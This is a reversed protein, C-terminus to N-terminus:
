KHLRGEYKRLKTYDELIDQTNEDKAITNLIERLAHDPNMLSRHKMSKVIQVVREESINLTDAANRIIREHQAVTKFLRQRLMMDNISRQLIHDDVTFSRRNPIDM